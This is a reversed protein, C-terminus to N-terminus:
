NKIMLYVFWGFTLPGLILAFLFGKVYDFPEFDKLGIKGERLLLRVWLVTWGVLGLGLWWILM